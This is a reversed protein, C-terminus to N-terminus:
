RSQKKHGNNEGQRCVACKKEWGMKQFLRLQTGLVDIENGCQCLCKWMRKKHKRKTSVGIIKCGAMEGKMVNDISEYRCNKCRYPLNKKTKRRLQIGPLEVLNGCQCRIIWSIFRQRKGKSNRKKTGQQVVKCGRIITNTMDVKHSRIWFLLQADSITRM